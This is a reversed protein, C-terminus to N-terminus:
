KKPSFLLGFNKMYNDYEDKGMDNRLDEKMGYLEDEMKLKKSISTEKSLDWNLDIIENLQTIQSDTM